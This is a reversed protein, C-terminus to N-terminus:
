QNRLLKLLEESFPNQNAQLMRIWDQRQRIQEEPASNKPGWELFQQFDNIAGLYDGTLARAVGRSDHIGGHDPELAVARECAAMVDTAFGGLSGFWCLANWSAAAIELNPDSAQAVEFATMAEKIAGQKALEQGKAVLVSAALWRAGKGLDLALTPDLNFAQQFAVVAGDIDGGGALELGKDVLVSAALRRAEKQLVVDSVGDVQLAIHLKAVAGEVDGNKVQGRIIEFFSPHLPRNQCTKRYPEDGLYRQWETDSFNSGTLLCAIRVLDDIVMSWLRVTSDASTALVRGDPSFAVGVVEKEHGRLVRPEATPNSLSWLRVTNDLSATALVQGDPSFAVSMVGEEHGVLPISAIKAIADRLAEEAAPILAAKLAEISLLISLTPQAEISAKSVASFYRALRILAVQRQQHAEKAAAVAAIRQREAEAAAGVAEQEKKEALQQATMAVHQADAAKNRQLFAYIAVSITALLLVGIVMTIARFRSAARAQEEARAAQEEARTRQVEALERAQELERQQAREHEHRQKEEEAESETLFDMALQYSDGYRAAWAETPKAHEKWVRANELDVGRWLEAGVRQQRRKAADELRQYQRASEAEAEV